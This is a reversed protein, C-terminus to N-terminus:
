KAAEVESRILGSHTCRRQPADDDDDLLWGYEDCAPCAEIVNRAATPQSGSGAAPAAAPQPRVLAYRRLDRM